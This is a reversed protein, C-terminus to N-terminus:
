EADNRMEKPLRPIKELLPSGMIGRYQEYLHWTKIEDGKTWGSVYFDETQLSRKYGKSSLAQAYEDLLVPLKQLAFEEFCLRDTKDDFLLFAVGPCMKWKECYWNNECCALCNFLKGNISDRDFFLYTLSMEHSLRVTSTQPFPILIRHGDLYIVKESYILTTHYKIVLDSVSFRTNCQHDAINNMISNEQYERQDEIENIRIQFEPYLSHYKLDSNNFDGLWDDPSDLMLLLKETVSLDVGFRKRWLYEVKDIDAFGKQPTNTDGIRTYIHGAQVCKRGDNFPEVLYYPTNRTNKIIIVDVFCNEAFPLTQVYVTPRIGGGFKINKLFDILNQQSKRNEEPVGKIKVGDEHKSDSVGIILYADRNVLNNAMCIIDHLLDANNEHWQVKFDWYDGETKLDILERIEEYLNM